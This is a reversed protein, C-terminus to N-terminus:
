RTLVDTASGTRDAATFLDNVSSVSLAGELMSDYRAETLLERAIEEARGLLCQLPGCGVSIRRAGAAALDAIPPVGAYGAYVNLAVRIRAAADEFRQEADGAPLFYADTRANIFM